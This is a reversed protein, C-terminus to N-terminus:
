RLDEISQVASSTMAHIAPEWTLHTGHFLLMSAAVAGLLVVRRRGSLWGRAATTFLLAGAVGVIGGVVVEAVTHEHLVVRTVGVVIAISVAAFSSQRLSRGASRFVLGLLGGYAASSAAVHGSPSVLGLGPPSLSCGLGKCIQFGLKLILILAWVSATVAIWSFAIQRQRLLLLTIAVTACVPAMVGADAFDTLYLALSSM